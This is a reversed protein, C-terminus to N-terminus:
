EEAVPGCGPQGRIRVDRAPSTQTRFSASLVILWWQDSSVKVSNTIGMVTGAWKGVVTQGSNARTATAASYADM